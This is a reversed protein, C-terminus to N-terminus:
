NAGGVLTHAIRACGLGGAAGGGGGVSGEGTVGALRAARPRALPTHPRKTAPGDLTGQERERRDRPRSSLHIYLAVFPRGGPSAQGRTSGSHDRRLQQSFSSHVVRQGPRPDIQSRRQAQRGAEIEVLADAVVEAERRRLPRVGEQDVGEALSRFLTTYPFPTDTRTSRPPRRIM